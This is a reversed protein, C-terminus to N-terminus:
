REWPASRAEPITTIEGRSPQRYTAESPPKAAGTRMEALGEEWIVIASYGLESKAKGIDETFDMGILRLIQRTIPPEGKFRLASWM